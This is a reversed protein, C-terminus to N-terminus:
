TSNSNMLLVPSCKSVCLCHSCSSTGSQFNDWPWKATTKGLLKRALLLLRSHGRPVLTSSPCAPQLELPPGLQLRPLGSFLPLLGLTGGPGSPKPAAGGAGDRRSCGSPVRCRPEMLSGGAATQAPVACGSLVVLTKNIQFYMLWLSYLKLKKKRFLSLSRNVNFFFFLMFLIIFFM